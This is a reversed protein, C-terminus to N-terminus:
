PWYPPPGKPPLGYMCRLRGFGMAGGAKEGEMGVMGKEGAWPVRGNGKPAGDWADIGDRGKPVGEWDINGDRGNMADGVGMSGAPIIGPSTGM